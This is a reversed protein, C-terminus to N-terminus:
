QTREASVDRVFRRRSYADACLAVLLASGVCCPV